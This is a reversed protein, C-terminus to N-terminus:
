RKLCKTIFSDVSMWLGSYDRNKNWLLMATHADHGCAHMKGLITSKYSIENEENIPLADM